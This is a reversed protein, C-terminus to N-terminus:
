SGEELFTRLHALIAGWGGEAAVSDRLADSGAGHREIGRHVLEVRTTDAGEPVFRIEVESASDPEPHYKWDTGLHWALLVRHPPEWALVRGWDCETGDAAREYWRGEARPELVIETFAKDGIHHSTPWWAAMSGTFAQFTRELPARVTVERVVAPLTETM